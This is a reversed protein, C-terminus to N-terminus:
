ASWRAFAVTVPSANKVPAGAPTLRGSALDVRWTVVTDSQENAACLLRQSPDFGIFRPTRGQSPVWGAPSLMGSTRDVSFVAISDHGRNSCYVFRGGAGVAIEAGTSEGTFDAPLTPLIQAPDLRGATRDWRYATITSALENLTWM